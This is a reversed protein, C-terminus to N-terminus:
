AAAGGSSETRFRRRRGKHGTFIRTFMPAIERSYTGALGMLEDTAIRDLALMKDPVPPDLRLYRDEGLLHFATNDAGVSQGRLIVDIASRAWLILGGRDLGAPRRVVDSTTGLSFMRIEELGVGFLGYAETIGVVAPNNAWLGGDVLRIGRLNFGAFYTPAAATAMAVDVMLERGDRVLRPNHPTKFLYVRDQGINFAPIVLPVESEELRRDGVIAHLAERLAGSGYKPRLLNLGGRRFIAPGWEAYQALINAPSLGAGLGLAIIGGTSTGVILDFLPAIPQHFDEELAALVAASFVGKYGGGDLCLVQFRDPRTGGDASIGADLDFSM